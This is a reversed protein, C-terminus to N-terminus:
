LARLVAEALGHRELPGDGHRHEPGLGEWSHIVEFGPFLAVLEGPELYTRVVGDLSCFSNEADETWEDKQREFAPDWTGFGTIFLLGGPALLEGIAAVLATVKARRLDPIVGFVMIAGYGGPVPELDEFGRHMTRIPLGENEAAVKVACIAENSPDLAHVRIKRRALFLTNRGQGCGIDLATRSPEILEVHEVLITNPETGFVAPTNRYYDDYRDM